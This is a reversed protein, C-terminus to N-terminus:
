DVSNAARLFGGVFWKRFSVEAMDFMDRKPGIWSWPLYMVPANSGSPKMKMDDASMRGSAKQPSRIMTM